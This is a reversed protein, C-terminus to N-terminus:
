PYRLTIRAALNPRPVNLRVSRFTPIGALTSPNNSFGFGERPLGLRSRDLKMSANEDHYVAIGYVGPKPIFICAHTAGAQAPFRQVGISGHKVLFSGPEDAYLTVAVLGNGNRVGEVLVNLWTGSPTGACDEPPAVQASANAASALALATTIALTCLRHLVTM